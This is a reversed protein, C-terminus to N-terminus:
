GDRTPPGAASPSRGGSKTAPRAEIVAVTHRRGALMGRFQDPRLPEQAAAVYMPLAHTAASGEASERKSASCLAPSAIM